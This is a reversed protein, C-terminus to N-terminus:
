SRQSQARAGNGAGPARSEAWPKKLHKILTLCTGRPMPTYEVHDFAARMIRVGLGGPRFDDLDRSRIKAPDCSEGYDRLVCRLQDNRVELTLRIPRCPDGKYAYRIINTCAEDIALVVLESQMEDLGTDTLCDRVAARMAALNCTDSTFKLKM